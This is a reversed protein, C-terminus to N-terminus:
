PAPTVVVAEGGDASTLTYVHQGVRLTASRDDNRDIFISGLEAVAGDSTMSRELVVGGPRWADLAYTFTMAPFQNRASPDIRVEPTTIPRIGYDALRTPAYFSGNRPLVGLGYGGGQRLVCYGRERDNEIVVGCWGQYRRAPMLTTGITGFAAEFVPTGRPIVVRDSNVLGTGRIDNELFGVRAHQVRVTLFPQSEQAEAQVAPAEIPELLSWFPDNDDAWSAQSVAFLLGVAVLLARLNLM